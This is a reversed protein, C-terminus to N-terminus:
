VIWTFITRLHIFGVGYEYRPVGRHKCWWLRCNVCHSHADARDCCPPTPPPTPPISHTHPVGRRTCWWSGCDGDHHTHRDCRACWALMCDGVSVVSGDDSDFDDCEEDESDCTVPSVTVHCTCPCADVICADHKARECVRWAAAARVCFFSDCGQVDGCM